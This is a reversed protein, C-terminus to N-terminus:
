GGFLAELVKISAIYPRSVAFVGHRDAATQGQYYAALVLDRNGDYRDLYHALLRVGARVNQRTDRLNVETGLMAEGVWEGTAPLLQMVGVAGASSVVDQQWGSEQWAVALALASPVDFREAEAVILKRVADRQAVLAAMSEPLVPRSSAAPQAPAASPITLKQGAYIRSPDALGNARGIAAITTGYARAIGTLHEGARVTHTQAAPAASPAPAAAPPTDADPELRLRQGVFIRNPDRLANLDVLREVTLDHRRAISTLTDGSRVIIEDAGMAATALIPAAVLTTAISAAAISLRPRSM